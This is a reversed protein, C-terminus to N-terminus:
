NMLLAEAIKLDIPNTLKINEVNGDVLNIKVGAAECVSADDTFLDNEPQEYAEKIMESQFTQPTQVLRFRNRDVHKSEYSEVERISEVVPVVPLANGKELTTQFCNNLTALSVLPRVGDHIFVIGPGDVKELGNKVSQFRTAGGKALEVPYDFDYDRCIVSWQEFQDEPLVLIIKLEPDFELFRLITWLLVPKGAIELFQKPVTAGMRAGKGGAVILAFKKM